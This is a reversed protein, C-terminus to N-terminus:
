LRDIIRVIQKFQRKQTYNNEIYGRYEGPTYEASLVMEGFEKVNNFLYEPPYLEKAGIFNHLVPKLGMAMAEAIGYGFSELVSTSLIYSKDLLWNEVDEVWGHFVINEELGMAKVMHEFYLKFRLEQHEGAIHLKYRPDIEVLHSMCQLLLSPNKKHNIYGIYAINFGKQTGLLRYKDLNIGNHVIEMAVEHERVQFQDMFIKKIHAAVFILCDINEWAVEHPFNSFVEYSHLRCVMKCVKPLKSAQVAMGDCWEFWSIDSWDMLAHMEQVSNGQFQKVRHRGSLHTGIDNLFTDNPGCFLAIKCPATKPSKMKEPTHIGTGRDMGADDIVIRSPKEGTSFVTHMHHYAAELNRTFRETDFLPQTNRNYILRQRLASLAEPDRALEITMREYARLNEVALEQMGVASLISASMNSAFHSGRTTVVPVGMWLADSTTAAGTVIRTDLALDALRLRSLHEEKPLRKSFILRDSDINRLRAENQLHNDTTDGNHQLWLVSGPVQRLINMWTDFIVPDIKYGQHFASFVFGEAPLNFDKRLWIKDWASQPYHNVQYCHPMYVFKESYSEDDTEPTVIKDTVIYDFFDAGTTGALGLYRVQVPAPRLACIAMRSGQTHGVLDVLIDINDAYIAKAAAMYHLKRIDAFKDCNQEIAQRYQSGDDPGYSYCNIRFQERSHLKLLGLMLHAMPHDKYNGSLYGISIKPDNKTKTKFPFAEAV